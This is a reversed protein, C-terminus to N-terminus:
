DSNLSLLILNFSLVLIFLLLLFLSEIFSFVVVLLLKNSSISSLSNLIIESLFGIGFSSNVWIGVSSSSFLSSVIGSLKGSKLVFISFIESFEWDLLGWFSV